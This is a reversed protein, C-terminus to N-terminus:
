KSASLSPSKAKKSLWSFCASAPWLIACIPFPLHNVLPKAPDAHRFNKMLQLVQEAQEPKLEIQDLVTYVAKRQGHNLDNDRLLKICQQAVGGMGPADRFPRRHSIRAEQICEGVACLVAEAGYSTLMLSNDQLAAVATEMTRSFASPNNVAYRIRNGSAAGVERHEREVKEPAFSVPSDLKSIFGTRREVERFHERRPIDGDQLMAGIIVGRNGLTTRLSDVAKQDFPGVSREAESFFQQLHDAVKSFPNLLAQYREQPTPSGNQPEQANDGQSQGFRKNELEDPFVVTRASRLPEGFKDVLGEPPQGPTQTLVKPQGFVESATPVELGPALPGGRSNFLVVPSTSM